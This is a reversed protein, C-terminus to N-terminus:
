ILFFVCLYAFPNQFVFCSLFGFVSLISCCSEFKINQHQEKMFCLTFFCPLSVFLCFCSLLIFSFLFLLLFSSLFSCSLSLSLSLSFPFNLLLQPSVFPSVSVYVLAKKPLSFPNKEKRSAFFLFCGGGFFYPPKPALHPPGFCFFCVLVFLSPKPGLSTAKKAM